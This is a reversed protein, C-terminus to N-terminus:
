DLKFDLDATFKRVADALALALSEAYGGGSGDSWGSSGEGVYKRTFLDDKNDRVQVMLAVKADHRLYADDYVELISGTVRLHKPSNDKIVTFGANKLEIHLARKVWEPLDTPSEVRATKIGFTNRIHGVARKDDREDSFLAIAILKQESDGKDEGKDEGKDKDEDASEESRPPYELEANRTGFACASLLSLSLGLTFLSTSINSRSM